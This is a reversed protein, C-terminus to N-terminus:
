DTPLKIIKGGVMSPPIYKEDRAEEKKKRRYQPPRERPFPHVFTKGAQIVDMEDEREFFYLLEERSKLEKKKEKIQKMLNKREYAECQREFLQQREASWREYLRMQDNVFDDQSERISKNLNDEILQVLDLDPKAAIAALDNALDERLADDPCAQLQEAVLEKVLPSLPSHQSLLKLHQQLGAWDQLFARGLVQCNLRLEGSPVHSSCYALTKGVLRSHDLRFHDDVYKSDDFDIRLLVREAPESPKHSYDPNDAENRHKISLVCSLLVLLNTVHNDFQEMLMMRSAVIGSGVHDGKELLQDMIHSATFNDLFVGYREPQCLIVLIEKFHKHQLLLRLVAHQTSEMLLLTTGGSLRFKLLLDMVDQVNWETSNDSRLSQMYLDVDLPWIKMETRMKQSITVYFEGPKDLKKVLDENLRQNWADECMYTQPLYDRAQLFSGPSLHAHFIQGHRIPLVKRICNFSRSFM